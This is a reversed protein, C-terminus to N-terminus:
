ESSKDVEIRTVSWFALALVCGLSAFGWALEATPTGVNGLIMDLASTFGSPFLFERLLTGVSGFPDAIM